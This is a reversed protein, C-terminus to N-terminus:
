ADAPSKEPNKVNAMLCIVLLVLTLTIGNVSTLVHVTEVSPSLRNLFMRTSLYNFAPVLMLGALMLRKIPSLSRWAPLIGAVLGVAPAFMLLADYSQHYLSVLLATVIIAGTMGAVGDDIGRRSRYFLLVMPPVLLGGMVILHTLDGPVSGTWKAVVSLLDLRTWSFTPSEDEMNRHIEQAEEIHELVIKTGSLIDGDGQHSALWLIPGVAGAISLIAGLTLSKYNGRAFMLFGLPLIYTPKASVVVLALAALVPKRGGWHIALFTALVLELTFYGDFLTIHGGRSFVLGAAIVLIADLRKPLGATSACVSAIAIILGVSFLFYLVEAVQLPLVAFPAHLVLIAPSFFPIQRAVPYEAAYKPGYPSEGVLLAKTPFYIGNHFDCLGQRSEDFPGPTQYQKVIRAATAALGLLLMLAAAFAIGRHGLQFREPM